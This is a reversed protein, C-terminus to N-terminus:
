WHAAHPGTITAALVFRSAFPDEPIENNKTSASLSPKLLPLFKSFNTKM